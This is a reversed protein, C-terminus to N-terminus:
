HVGQIETKEDESRINYKLNIFIEVVVEEQPCIHFVVGASKNTAPM